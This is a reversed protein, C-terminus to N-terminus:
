LRVPAAGGARVGTSSGPTLRSLVEAFQKVVRSWDYQAALRV